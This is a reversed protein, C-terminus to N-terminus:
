NTVEQRIEADMIMQNVRDIENDIEDQALKTFDKLCDWFEAGVWLHYFLLESEAISEIKVDEIMDGNRQYSVTCELYVNKLRIAIDQTRM